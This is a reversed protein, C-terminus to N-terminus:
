TNPTPLSLFMCFYEAMKNGVIMFGKEYFTTTLSVGFYKGVFLLCYYVVTM